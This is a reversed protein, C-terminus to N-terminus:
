GFRWVDTASLSARASPMVIVGVTASLPATVRSADEGVRDSRMVTVTWLVVGSPESGETSSSTARVRMEFGASMRPRPASRAISAFRAMVSDTLRDRSSTATTRAWCIARALAVSSGPATFLVSFRSVSSGAVATGFTMECTGVSVSGESLGRSTPRSAPSRTRNSSSSASFGLRRPGTRASIRASSVASPSSRVTPRAASPVGSGSVLSWNKARRCPKGSM